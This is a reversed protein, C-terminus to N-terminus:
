YRYAYPPILCEPQNDDDVSPQTAQRASLPRSAFAESVPTERSGLSQNAITKQLMDRFEPTKDYFNMKPHFLNSVERELVERELVERELAERELVERELAERELIEVENIKNAMRKFFDYGTYFTAFAACFCAIVLLPVVMLATVLSASLKTMPSEGARLLDYCEKILSFPMSPAIILIGVIFGIVLALPPLVAKAMGYKLKLFLSM